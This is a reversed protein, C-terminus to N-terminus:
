DSCSVLASQNEALLGLKDHHDYRVQDVKYQLNIVLQNYLWGGGGERSREGPRAAERGGGRGQDRGQGQRRGGVM